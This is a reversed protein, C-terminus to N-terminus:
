ASRVEVLCNNGHYIETRRSGRKVNCWSHAAGNLHKIFRGDSDFIAIRDDRDKGRLNEHEFTADALRLPQLCDCCRGNQRVWMLLIRWRYEACGEATAPNCIEREGRMAVAPKNEWHKGFRRSGRFQM